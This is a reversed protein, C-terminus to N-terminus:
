QRSTPPQVSYSATRWIGDRQKFMIVVERGEGMNAFTGRYTVIVYEGPPANPMDTSYQANALERGRSEGLQQRVRRAQQAWAGVTIMARFMDAAEEWSEEYLEEDILELWADAAEAAERAEAATEASSQADQAALPATWVATSMPLAVVLAALMRAM